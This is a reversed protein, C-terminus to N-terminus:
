HREFLLMATNTFQPVFDGAVLIIAPPGLTEDSIEPAWERLELLPDEVDRGLKRQYKAFVTGVEDLSFRSMM